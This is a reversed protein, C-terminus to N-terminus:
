WKVFPIKALMWKLGVINVVFSLQEVIRLKSVLWASVGAVQVLVGPPGEAPTAAQIASTAFALIQRMIEVYLSYLNLTLFALFGGVLFLYWKSQLAAWFGALAVVGSRLVPGILWLGPGAM